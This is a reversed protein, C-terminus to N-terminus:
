DQLSNVRVRVKAGEKISAGGRSYLKGTVSGDGIILESISALVKNDDDIVVFGDNSELQGKPMVKIKSTAIMINATKGNLSTVKGMEYSPNFAYGLLNAAATFAVDIVETYLETKKETPFPVKSSVKKDLTRKDSFSKVLEVQGKQNMFKVDLQVTTKFTLQKRNPDTPMPTEYDRLEKIRPEIIYSKGDLSNEIVKTFRKTNAIQTKVSSMISDVSDAPLQKAWKGTIDKALEDSVLNVPELALTTVQQAETIYVPEPASACGFATLTAGAMLILKLKKM